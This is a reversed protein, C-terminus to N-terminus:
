TIPDKWTYVIGTRRVACAGQEAAAEAGRGQGSQACLLAGRSWSYLSTGRMRVTAARCRARGLLWHALGQAIEAGVRYRRRARARCPLHQVHDLVAEGLAADVQGRQGCAQQVAGRIHDEDGEDSAGDGEEPHAAAVGRGPQGACPMHLAPVGVGGANQLGSLERHSRHPQSSSGTCSQTQRTAKTEVGRCHTSAGSPALSATQTAPRARCDSM